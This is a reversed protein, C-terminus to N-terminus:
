WWRDIMGSGDMDIQKMIDSSELGINDIDEIGSLNLLIRPYDCHIIHVSLEIWPDNTTKSSIGERLLEMEM